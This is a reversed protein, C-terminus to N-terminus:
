AEILVRQVSVHVNSEILRMVSDLEDVDLRLEQMLRARTARLLAGRARTIRRAATARHCGFLAAIRDIGLGEAFHLRLVNREEASLDRVAAEFSTRFAEGYKQKLITLEADPPEDIARPESDVLEEQQDRRRNARQYDILMRLLTVRLWNRLDGQGSYDAIKPKPPALLRQRCIQVFDDAEAEARRLRARIIALESGFTAEFQGIARADGRACGYALYLDGARVRALADVVGLDGPLHAALHRMFGEADLDLDRADARAQTVIEGLLAGVAERSDRELADNGLVECFSRLLIDERM